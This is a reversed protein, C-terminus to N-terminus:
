AAFLNGYKDFILKGLTSLLLPAIVMIDAWSQFEIHVVNDGRLTLFYM